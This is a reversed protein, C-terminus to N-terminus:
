EKGGERVDVQGVVTGYRGTGCKSPRILRPEIKSKANIKFLCSYVRRLISSASNSGNGTQGLVM